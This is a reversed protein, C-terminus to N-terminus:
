RPYRTACAHREAAACLPAAPHPRARKGCLANSRASRPRRERELCRTEKCSCLANLASGCGRRV